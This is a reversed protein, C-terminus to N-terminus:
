EVMTLYLLDLGALEGTWRGTVLDWVLAQLLKTDSGAIDAEDEV